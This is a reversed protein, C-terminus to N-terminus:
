PKFFTKIWVHMDSKMWDAHFAGPERDKMDSHLNHSGARCAIRMEEYQLKMLTAPPAGPAKALDTIVKDNSCGVNKLFGNIGHAMCVIYNQGCETTMLVDKRVKPNDFFSMPLDVSVAARAWQM